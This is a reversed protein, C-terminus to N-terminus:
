VVKIIIIYIPYIKVTILKQSIVTMKLIAMLVVLWMVYRYVYCDPTNAYCKKQWKFAL